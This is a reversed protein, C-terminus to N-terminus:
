LIMFKRVVMMQYCKQVVFLKMMKEMTRSIFVNIMVLEKQAVHLKVTMKMM